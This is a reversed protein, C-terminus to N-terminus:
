LLLGEVSSEDLRDSEFRSSWKVRSGTESGSPTLDKINVYGYDCTSSQSLRFSCNLSASIGLALGIAQGHTEAGIM